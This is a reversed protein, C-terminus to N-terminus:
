RLEVPKPLIGPMTTIQNPDRSLVIETTGKYGASQLVQYVYVKFSPEPPNVHIAYQDAVQGASTTKANSIIKGTWTVQRATLHSQEYDLSVVETLELGILPQGNPFSTTKLQDTLTWPFTTKTGVDFGGTVEKVQYLSSLDQHSLYKPRKVSMKRTASAGGAITVTVSVDGPKESERIPLIQVAAQNTAGVFKIKDSSSSWHFSNPCCNATVRLAAPKSNSAPKHLILEPSPGSIEISGTCGQKPFAAGGSCCEKDPNHWGDGCPKDGKLEHYKDSIWEKINEVPRALLHLVSTIQGKVREWPEKLYKDFLGAWDVGVAPCLDPNTALNFCAGWCMDNGLPINDDPPKCTCKAVYAEPYCSEPSAKVANAAATKTTLLSSTKALSFESPANLKPTSPEASKLDTVQGGKSALLITQNSAVPAFDKDPLKAKGDFLQSNQNYLDKLRTKANADLGKNIDNIDPAEGKACSDKAKKKAATILDNKKKKWNCNAKCNKLDAGAKDAEDDLFSTVHSCLQEMVSAQCVAPQLMVAAAAFARGPGAAECSTPQSSFLSVAGLIALLITKIKM